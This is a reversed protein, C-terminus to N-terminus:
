NTEIYCYHISATIILFIEEDRCLLRQSRKSTDQRQLSRAHWPISKEEKKM